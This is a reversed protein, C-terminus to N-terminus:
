KSAILAIADAYGEFGKGNITALCVASILSTARFPERATIDSLHVEISPLNVGQLADRIAVSSHTFGGPNLIIGDAWHRAWQIWSIIEGEHNSQRCLLDCNALAAREAAFVELDDLSQTGYIEPERTGLLNLNPGNILLIRKRRPLSNLPEGEAAITVLWEATERVVAPSVDSSVAARGITELLIWHIRQQAVKKDRSLAELLEDTRLSVQPVPLKSLLLDITDAAVENMKYLAASMRIAARMGLFVAEGHTLKSYGTVAEIAHGFTHGFNLLRRNGAELEDSHVIDVKTKAALEIARLVQGAPWTSLDVGCKCVLEWLEGGSLIASKVVEASGSRWEREDLTRLTELPAAVLLPQHFAGILNKGLLHDVGTKGGIAADVMGLLTTPLAIWDVGRHYTAAVFGALDTVVGGGLGILIGDRPFKNQALDDLIRAASHLTKAQEGPRVITHSPTLGHRTCAAYATDLYHLAVREDTVLHLPREAVFPLLREVAQELGGTLIAIPITKTATVLTLESM